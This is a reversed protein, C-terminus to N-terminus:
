SEEILKLGLQFRLFILLLFALGDIGHVHLSDAHIQRLDGSITLHLGILSIIRVGREIIIQFLCLIYQGFTSVFNRELGIGHHRLHNTFLSLLVDQLQLAVVIIDFQLVAHNSGILLPHEIDDIAMEHRTHAGDEQCGAAM